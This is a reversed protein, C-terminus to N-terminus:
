ALATNNASPVSISGYLTTTSRHDEFPLLFGTMAQSKKMSSLNDNMQKNWFKFAGPLEKPDGSGQVEGGSHLAFVRKRLDAAYLQGTAAINIESDFSMSRQNLNASGVTIFVDDIIMLKSHIYIERYAMNSAADAGSSRLRAVSVELGLTQELESFSHRDLVQGGKPGVHSDPYNQDLKGQDSLHAQEPMSNQAGLETLTDFTRPVMEAREPHPIVIFLHLKPVESVPKKAKAIWEDCFSKRHRILNRAFEPYFFYQNEIYIYNHASSSAQFYIEKISKDREHPQTRVIQVLHAPNGQATKIKVPPKPPVAYPVGHGLAAAWGNEFNYHLQALAPGVVRCAYDQFPRGHHYNEKGATGTAGQTDRERQLEDEITKSTLVERKSDDVRHATTDWYDTVSNLGMVYGVAKSGSDWDYDILIPKQHHTAYQELQSKEDTLSFTSSYPADKEAPQVSQLAKADAESVERLVIRLRPNTGANSRGGPLHKAWWAMCWKHREDDGTGYPSTQRLHHMVPGSTWSQQVDSFGPMNNQLASGRPTSWILLRVTVPSDKRSSIEELLQGYRMGRPWKDTTRELEMGPDFGWCVLDASSRAERLDKAISNFGDEGCIMFNLTNGRTVPIAPRDELLWQLSGKAMRAQEDIAVKATQHTKLPFNM